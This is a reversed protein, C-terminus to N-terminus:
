HEGRPGTRGSGTPKGGAAGRDMLFPMFAMLLGFTGSLLLGVSDLGERRYHAQAWHTVSLLAPIGVVVTMTLVFLAMLRGLDHLLLLFLGAGYAVFLGTVGLWDTRPYAFWLVVLFLLNYPVSLVRVAPSLRRAPAEDRPPAAHQHFLWSRAAAPGIESLEVDEGPWEAKVVQQAQETTLAPYKARLVDRLRGRRGPVVEALEARLETLQQEQPVGARQRALRRARAQKRLGWLSSLVALSLVVYTAAVASGAM